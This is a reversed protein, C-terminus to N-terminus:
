KQGVDVGIREAREHASAVFPGIKTPGHESKVGRGQRGVWLRQEIAHLLQECEGGRREHSHAFDSDIEIPVARSTLFLHVNKTSLGFPADAKIQREDNMGTGGVGFQEFHKRRELLLQGAADEVAEATRCAFGFFEQSEVAKEQADATHHGELLASQGGYELRSHRELANHEFGIRGIECRRGMAAFAVLRSEDREDDVTKGIDVLGCRFAYFLDRAM